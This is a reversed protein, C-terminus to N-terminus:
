WLNTGTISFTGDENVHLECSGAKANLSIYNNKVCTPYYFNRSGSAFVVAICFPMPTNNQMNHWVGGWVDKNQFETKSTAVVVELVATSVQERITQMEQSVERVMESVNAESTSLQQRINNLTTTLQEQVSEVTADSQSTIEEVTSTLQEVVADTINTLLTGLSEPTITNRTRIQM